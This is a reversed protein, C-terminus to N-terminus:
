FLCFFLTLFLFGVVLIFISGIFGVLNNKRLHSVLILFGMTLYYVSAVLYLVAIISNYVNISPIKKRTISDILMLTLTFIGSWRVIVVIKIDQQYFCGGLLVIGLILSVFIARRIGELFSINLANLIKPKLLDQLIKSSTRAPSFQM